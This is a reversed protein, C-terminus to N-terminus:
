DYKFLLNIDKNRETQINVFSKDPYGKSQRYTDTIEVCENDTSCHREFIVNGADYKLESPLDVPELNEPFNMHLQMTEFRNSDIYVPNIRSKQPISVNEGPVTLQFFDGQKTVNQSFFISLLATAPDTLDINFSDLDALPYHATLKEFAYLQRQRETMELTQRIERQSYGKDKIAIKGKLMDDEGLSLFIDTLLTDCFSLLEVELGTEANITKSPSVPFRGLGDYRDGPYIFLDGQKVIPINFATLGINNGFEAEPEIDEAALLLESGKLLSKLILARELMNAYAKSGANESLKYGFEDIDPGKAEINENMWKWASDPSNFSIDKTLQLQPIDTQFGIILEPRLSYQPPIFSESRVPRVDDVSLTLIDGNRSQSYFDDDGNIFFPMDKPIAFSARSIAWKKPLEFRCPRDIDMPHREESMFDIISGEVAEGIAAKVRVLNSYEPINGWPFGIELAADDLHFVRGEPSISRFHILEFDSDKLYDFSQRSMVKGGQDEIRGILRRKIKLGDDETIECSYRLVTFGDSRETEDDLAELLFTDDIDEISQWQWGTRKKQLDVSLLSDKPMSSESKGIEYIAEDDTITRINASIEEGNKLYIVDTQGLLSLCILFLIKKM